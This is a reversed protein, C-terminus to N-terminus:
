SYVKAKTPTALFSFISRYYSKVLLYICPVKQCIPPLPFMKGKRWQLFVSLYFYTIQSLTQSHGRSLNIRMHLLPQFITSTPPAIFISWIQYYSHTILGVKFLSLTIYNLVLFWTLLYKFLDFFGLLHIRSSFNYGPSM